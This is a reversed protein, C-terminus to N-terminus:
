IRRLRCLARLVICAMDPYPCNYPSHLGRMIIYKMITVGSIIQTACTEQRKLMARRHEVARPIATEWSRAKLVLQPLTFLAIRVHSMHLLLPREALKRKLPLASRMLAEAVSSVVTASPLFLIKM